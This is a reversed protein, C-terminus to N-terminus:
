NSKTYVEFRPTDDLLRKTYESKPRSLVDKTTGSELVRGQALVLMDEAISEILALNHTVFMVSLGYERKLRDILSIVVAQVSVDLASTVEDCILLKPRVVLARAIAVRQRQGGSLHRPYRSATATSLSVARLAEEVRKAVQDAAVDELALLTAAISEGITRRPNLSAYPNQFVYQIERRHERGRQKAGVRLPAGSLSLSGEYQDHLGAICRALTTKGSGSEGIVALCVGRNITLRVDHLVRQNGHSASLGEVKLLTSQEIESPKTESRPWEIGSFVLSHCRIVHDSGLTLRPPEEIECAPLNHTCRPQYSCGRSRVGPDPMEGPIGSVTGTRGLSPVALILARTYPHRPSVLVQATPGEEVIRGAYMVAVRNALQAVVALDHSIYIVAAGYQHCMHKVLTLVQAQTSVDLGTTPEDMVVVRPRVSFAMAIAVRQQQGGSLQHPFRNLFEDTAPLNVDYLLQMLRRHSQESAVPLSDALHTRIRLAPNLATGPDQPVYTVETSRLSQLCAGDVELVSTGAITVQSPPLIGLGTRCHNLVALGVTTKGSGSEGVLGLIEGEDVFLDVDSVIDADGAKRVVRLSRIELVQTM